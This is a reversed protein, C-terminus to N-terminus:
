YEKESCGCYDPEGILEKSGDDFYHTTANVIIGTNDCAACDYLKKPVVGNGICTM